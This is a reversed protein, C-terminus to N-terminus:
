EILALLREIVERELTEADTMAALPRTFSTITGGGFKDPVKWDVPTGDVRVGDAWAWSKAMWYRWENNPIRMVGASVVPQALEGLDDGKRNHLLVAVYVLAAPDPRHYHRSMWGPYWWSPATLSTSQEAGIAGKVKQDIEFGRRQLMADCDRLLAAVDAFVGELTAFLHQWEHPQNTM